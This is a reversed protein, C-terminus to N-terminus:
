PDFSNRPSSTGCDINNGLVEITGSDIRLFRALAMLLTTKGAGNPGVIGVVEGDGIELCIDKFVQQRGYAKSVNAALLVAGTGSKSPRSLADNM